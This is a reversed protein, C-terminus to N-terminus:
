VQQEREFHTLMKVNHPGTVDVSITDSLSSKGARSSIEQNFYMINQLTNRIGNSFKQAESKIRRKNM